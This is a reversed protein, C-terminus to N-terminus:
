PCDPTASSVLPNAGNGIAMVVTDVPIPHESGEIPIPRRRGSADPEGLAMKVCEIARVWGTKDGWIRVPNTLMLFQVGEEAANEIEEHRAPM